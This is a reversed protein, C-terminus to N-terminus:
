KIFSMNLIVKVLLFDYNTSDKMFRKFLIYFLAGFIRRQFWGKYIDELTDELTDEALLKEKLKLSM